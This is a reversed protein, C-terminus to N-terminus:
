ADPVEAPAFLVLVTLDERIDTFGHEAGPDVSVISGPGVPHDEGEVRLTAHGRQVFYIEDSRHPHQHDEGGVPLHYIGMSFGPRRLIENYPGRGEAPYGALDTAEFAQFRPM